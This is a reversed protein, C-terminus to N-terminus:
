RRFGDYYERSASEIESARPSDEPLSRYEEYMEHGKGGPPLDTRSQLENFKEDGLIARSTEAPEKAYIMEPSNIQIEGPVGSKTPVTANIGSYGM